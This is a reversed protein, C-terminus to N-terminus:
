WAPIETLSMITGAGFPTSGGVTSVSSGSNQFANLTCTDSAAFTVTGVASICPSSANGATREDQAVVTSGSGNKYCVTITRNSAAPMTNWEIRGLVSYTAPRQVTITKGTTPDCMLGTNDIYTAGLPVNTVTGTATSTSTGVMVGQMPLTKGAIKVWNTGDSELIASEGAWMIRTSAGDINGAATALTLLKTSAPTVRVGIQQGTFFTPAPLTFTYGASSLACAHMKGLDSTVLTTASSIAVENMTSVVGPVVAGSQGLITTTAEAGGTRAPLNYSASGSQPGANELILATVNGDTNVDYVTQAFGSGLDEWTVGGDTQTNPPGTTIWTPESGGSTGAVTCKYVHGNWVTPHVYVGAAYSTTAAWAPSGLAGGRRGSNRITINGSQGAGVHTGIDYLHGTFVTTDYACFNEM